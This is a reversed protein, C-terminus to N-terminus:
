MLFHTNKYIRLASSLIWKGAPVYVRIPAIKATNLLKQIVETVDTENVAGSNTIDLQNNNILKIIRDYETDLRDSILPFTQGTIKNFRADVVEANSDGVANIILNDIRKNLTDFMTNSLNKLWGLAYEITSWNENTNNRFDRNTWTNLWRKLKFM